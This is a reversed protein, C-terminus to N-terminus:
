NILKNFKYVNIINIFELKFLDFICISQFIHDFLKYIKNFLKQWLSFKLEPQTQLVCRTFPDPKPNPFLRIDCYDNYKM